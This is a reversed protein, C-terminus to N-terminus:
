PLVSRRRGGAADDGLGLDLSEGSIAVDLGPDLHAEVVLTLDGAAARIQEETVDVGLQGRANEVAVAPLAGAVDAHQVEVAVCAAAMKRVSGAVGNGVRGMTCAWKASTPNALCFHGADSWRTGRLNVDVIRNYMDDTLDAVM